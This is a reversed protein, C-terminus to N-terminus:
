NYKSRQTALARLFDPDTKALKLVRATIAKHDMGLEKALKTLRKDSMIADKVATTNRNIIGSVINDAVGSAWGFLGERLLAEANNRYVEEKILKRAKALLNSRSMPYNVIVIKLNPFKM